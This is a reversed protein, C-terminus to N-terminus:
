DEVFIGKFYVRGSFTTGTAATKVSMTLSTQGASTVLSTFRDRGSVAATVVTTSALLATTNGTIGFSIDPQLTVGSIGTPIIGLEDPFFTGGTPLTITVADDLLTKFDIIKSMLINEQGCYHLPIDTESGSDMITSLGTIVHTKPLTAQAGQGIAIANDDLADTDSGIAIGQVKSTATKAYYGIAIGGTGDDAVNTNDGIAVSYLGEASAYRGIGVGGTLTAESSLGVAVVGEAAVTANGAYAGYGLAVSYTCDFRVSSAGGIAVAFLSDTDDSDANNGIVIADPSWCGSRYGIVVSRDGNAAEFYHNRNSVLDIAYLGIEQLDYGQDRGFWGARLTEATLRAAIKTAVSFAAKTTGEQERVVTLVNTTINADTMKVIEINVGDDLTLLQYRGYYPGWADVVWESFVSADVVPIATVTDTIGASLSTESNNSFEPVLM